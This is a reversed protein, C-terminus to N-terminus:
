SRLDEPVKGGNQAIKTMVQKHLWINMAASDNTDGGYHLERALAKRSELSSDLGVLKMLDVISTRWNLKQPNKAALDNLVAEVDVEKMPTPSATGTPNPAAGAIGTPNPAAGATGTPNAGAGTKAPTASTATDGGTTAPHGTPFIKSLIRGFLSM